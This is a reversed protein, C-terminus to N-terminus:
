RTRCPGTVFGAAPGTEGGERPNSVVDHSGVLKREWWNLLAHRALYHFGHLNIPADKARWTGGLSYSGFGMLPKESWQTGGDSPFPPRFMPAPFPTGAHLARSRYDYVKRLVKRLHTKTWKLRLYEEVPRKDPPASPRFELGFDVFKKTAKLTPAIADAVTQLHEPGGFEELYTALQPEATRLIESTSSETIFVDNAATELASVFLLWALNPESESVWLAGQYSRCARVLSVYRQPAIQPISELRQLDELSHSGGVDPLMPTNQRFRLIPEPERAWECPRGYPDNDMGFQRSVGGAVLRTGLALSALAVIEDVLEGGHYLSEDTKSMDPITQSKPIEARLVMPANVTGERSPAPVTNLFEYPGATRRWEGTIHADSYLRYEIVAINPRRDEQRMKEFWNLQSPLAGSEQDTPNRNTEAVNTQKALTKM